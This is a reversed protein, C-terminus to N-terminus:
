CRDDEDESEMVIVEKRLAEAMNKIHKQATENVGAIEIIAEMIELAKEFGKVYEYTIGTM